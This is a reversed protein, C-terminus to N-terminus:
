AYLATEVLRKAKDCLYDWSYNARVWTTAQQSLTAQRTPNKLLNVCCRAFEAPTDAIDLQIGASVGLGEAGITTSVIPVEMAMAELIKLRTGGGSQIPVVFLSANRFCPRIDAPDSVSELEFGEASLQSHLPAAQSGAIVFKACPIEARVLPMIESIFFRAAQQNPAYSFTGTFLIQPALSETPTRKEASFYDIDVGNGIVTYNGRPALEFGSLRDEESCVITLNSTQYASKELLSMQKSIRNAHDRASKTKTTKAIRGAVNTEINYTNCLIFKPKVRLRSLLDQAYPWTFVDEIWIIDFEENAIRQGHLKLINQYEQYWTSSALPPIRGLRFLCNQEWSLIQQFFRYKWSRSIPTAGCHQVCNAVFDIWDNKWPAVIAKLGHSVLPTSCARTSNAAEGGWVNQCLAAVQPSLTQGTSNCLSVVNLNGISAATKAFFHSRVNGGSGPMQCAHITMFLINPRQM